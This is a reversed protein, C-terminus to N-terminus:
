LNNKGLLHRLAGELDPNRFRYGTELLKNPMVRTSSLLIERGMEGFALRIATEPVSFLTPRSLVKGLTKTFELNTVPNPAVANVPGEVKDDSVVHYIAGIVDDIGIWSMYQNGPGLKGGLCLKFPLLLKNLAGGLPTLTIGIRLFVTRVGKIKAPAAAQEWESCVGSIFDAGCTDEETLPEDGRNGYYGIASASILVKPLPDLKAIKEAILSTSKNRSEVIKKKKEKTWRGQGISEGALHIVVDINEIGDLDLLGSAPDWFVENEASLPSKRVLRIVRHGGTTLFPVLSSGLLGSAGSILFTLPGKDKQRLHDAIDYALTTHRFHFIRELRQNILSSGFFNGFPNIPLAYEIEDALYCKDTGDPIFRHTHIWHAFPGKIQRDRFLRNEKYEIHEAIWRIKLPLPGASIKMITKAGKEIGGSKYVIDLPDWPPSMREIAGPRSHWKFVERVPANIKSRKIFIEKRM